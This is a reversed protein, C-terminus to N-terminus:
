GGNRGRGLYRAMLKLLSGIGVDPEPEPSHYRCRDADRVIYRSCVRTGAAATRRLDFLVTYRCFNCVEDSAVLPRWTPVDASAANNALILSMEYCRCCDWDAANTGDVAPSPYVIPRRCNHVMAREDGLAPWIDDSTYYVRQSVYYALSSDAWTSLCVSLRLWHWEANTNAVRNLSRRLDWRKVNRFLWGFLKLFNAQLWLVTWCFIVVGAQLPTPM